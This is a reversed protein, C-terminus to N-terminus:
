QHKTTKWPQSLTSATLEAYEGQGTILIDDVYLGIAGVVTDEQGQLGVKWVNADEVMQVFKAPIGGDLQQLNNIYAAFEGPSIERVAESAM